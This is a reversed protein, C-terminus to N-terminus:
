KQISVAAVKTELCLPPTHIQIQTVGGRGEAAATFEVVDAIAYTKTIWTPGVRVPASKHIEEVRHNIPGVVVWGMTLM